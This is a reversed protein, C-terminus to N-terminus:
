LDLCPRMTNSPFIKFKKPLSLQEQVKLRWAWHEWKSSIVPSHQRDQKRTYQPVFNWPMLLRLKKISFAKAWFEILCPCTNLSQLLLCTLLMPIDFWWYNKFCYCKIDRSDFFLTTRCCPVSRGRQLFLELPAPPPFMSESWWSSNQLANLHEM